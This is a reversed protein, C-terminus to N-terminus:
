KGTDRKEKQRKKEEDEKRMAEFIAQMQQRQYMTPQGKQENVEWLQPPRQAPTMFLSDMPLTDDKSPYHAELVPPRQRLQPEALKLPQSSLVQVTSEDLTQNSARSRMYEQMALYTPRQCPDSYIWQELAHHKEATIRTGYTLSSLQVFVAITAVCHTMWFSLRTAPRWAQTTSGPQQIYGRKKRVLLVAHAGLFVLIGLFGTRWVM